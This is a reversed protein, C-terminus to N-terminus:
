GINNQRRFALPSVGVIKRFFKGLSSQDSFGYMDSIEKMSLSGTVIERKIQAILMTSIIEKAKRGSKLKCIEGLYKASIKLKNAYFNVEHQTHVNDSLLNIFSRFYADASSVIHRSLPQSGMEIDALALVLSRVMSSSIQKSHTSSPFVQYHELSQMFSQLLAWERKDNITYMPKGFIVGMHDADIGATAQLAFSDDMVLAVAKFNPSVSLTTLMSVHPFSVRMGESAKVIELNMEYEAAGELCLVIITYKSTITRGILNSQASLPVVCYGKEELLKYKDM